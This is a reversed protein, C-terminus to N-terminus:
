RSQGAVRLELRRVVDPGIESKAAVCELKSDTWCPSNCPRSFIRVDGFATARMVRVLSRKSLAFFPLENNLRHKVGDPLLPYVVEKLRKRIKTTLPMATFDSVDFFLLGDPTLWRYFKELIEATLPCGYGFMGLSHILDFSEPPFDARHVSDCVLEIQKADILEQRVPQRAAELMAASVDLGVLREVNKLCHFYRGTGCGVDLVSIRRGFSSTIDALSKWIWCHHDTRAEIEDDRRYDEAGAEYLEKLRQDLQQCDMDSLGDDFRHDNARQGPSQHSALETVGLGM